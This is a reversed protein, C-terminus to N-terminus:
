PEMKIVVSFGNEVLQGVSLLNCKIGPVYLVDKILAKVRNSRQIVIKGTGEVQLSSNDVLKVKSKKLENFDVLWLKRGTMHNSCGSDLFWIKFEVHDDAVAATVVMDDSDDSDQRALNVRKDKGKTSGKDKRKKKEKKNIMPIEKEKKSSESARDDVKNKHPNSWSKKGQTKYLKGKFKNSGSNKKWSQAQLAQISDQVEKKEVTRIEHAELSGVLYIIKEVIMKDTLNEGCGKMLHVRKHMKSVYGTIKKDEGM